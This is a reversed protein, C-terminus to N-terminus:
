RVLRTDPFQSYWGFWFARQATVRPARREPDAADVLAEETVQWRGGDADVVVLDGVLREFRTSGPDYVRNAGARSTVILLRRGAHEELHLRRDELFDASIALPRREGREDELLMVLVEDKNDLRDDRDPVDFMLDDTGFYARYAVGEGYDREHGTDLSLVTTEPHMRRWEGWTTTVVSRHTLRRGSGVLDGVVPIGEFTNWLSRTGHDFMLKNSRYLLGSTGFRIHEGEVVSEYPIVTGCLTCYVITLEVGGLRDLAMEHWALIRKPYARTEGGAAVGFVIDDDDLYDADGASLHEPYELPPIGNVDVGGWDIEDLRITSFVRRPFFGAFRPDIQAYWQGKFYAYDPHPDYPQDWIWQHVRRIDGRFRQGTQRELFRMLRRWVRTSPHEPETWELRGGAGPNTPDGRLSPPRLAPQRPPRMFRVLDWVIGAYGNRWRAAIQELAVDAVDGDADIAQFFLRIDPHGGVAVPQAWGPTGAAWCFLVAAAVCARRM